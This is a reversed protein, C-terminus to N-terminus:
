DKYDSGEKDLIERLRALHLASNDFREWQQATKEAVADSVVNLPKGTQLATIYNKASKEFYYMEDFARAITGAITMVGHNGMLLVKNKGVAESIREAEDGIGMGDFGEDTSVRQYFRMTNQDIPPMTSDALSALATAYHPHLHLLCRANQHNHHIAGHIAWATPDPPNVSDISSPDNADVLILDSAKILTFHSGNPNILFQAGDDSVSYSFHNAVAEHMELKASWRFVAALDCRAEHHPDIFHTQKSVLQDQKGMKTVWILQNVLYYLRTISHAVNKILPWQFKIEM